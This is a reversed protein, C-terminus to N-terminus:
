DKMSLVSSFSPGEAGPPGMDCQGCISMGGRNRQMEGIFQRRAAGNMIQNYTQERLNGLVGARPHQCCPVVTGDMDVYLLAVEGHWSNGGFEEPAGMFFCYGEPVETKRGSPTEVAEPLNMWGRFEPTWGRPHLVDYWRQRWDPDAIVSRTILQTAPSWRDRLERARELFEIFVPWKSPPRLREYEEPTGDGDCSVVLRNVVQLRLMDEFNDWYVKQGNTSIEVISAKWSQRPIQEVCEALQKHLLPEGYNFLRFTHIHRVDINRLCTAFDEVAIRQIKPLLTSNPCGICRLQCGHVIDFHVNFISDYQRPARIPIQDM